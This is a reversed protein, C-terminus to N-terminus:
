TILNDRFNISDPVLNKKTGSIDVVLNPYVDVQYNVEQDYLSYYFIQKELGKHALTKQGLQTLVFKLQDSDGGIFAM